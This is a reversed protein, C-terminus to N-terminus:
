GQEHHEKTIRIMFDFELQDNITYLQCKSSSLEWCKTDFLASVQGSPLTAGMAAQLLVCGIKKDKMNYVVTLPFQFEM